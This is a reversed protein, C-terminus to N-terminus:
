KFEFIDQGYHEVIIVDKFRKLLIDSIAKVFLKETNYHGADITFIGAQALAQADHYKLDGTVLADAKKSIIAGADGDFSGCFVAVTKIDKQNACGVTRINEVTLKEKVYATFENPNLKEKLKGVRGLSYDIGDREMRYVDYAVEEYPHAKLMSQVVNELQSKTVVTELRYEAVTELEGQRGIYPNTGKLPRFTGTGEAVFGCDRYKGIWGAGASYIADQVKKLSDKPIFVVLKYLPESYYTKLGSIDVLELTNALFDNLGSEALDFNTHASYITIDQRICDALMAGSGTGTNIAKIPRFIVPHHSIVMQVKEKIATNLAEQTFDLCVLIKQVNNEPNGLQLGSNDYDEQLYLPAYEGLFDIIDKCKM